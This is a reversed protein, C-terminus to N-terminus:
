VVNQLGKHSLLIENSWSWGNKFVPLLLLMEVTPFGRTHPDPMHALPKSGQKLAASNPTTSRHGCKLPM